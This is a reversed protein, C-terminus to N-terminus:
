ECMAITSRDCSHYSQRLRCVKPKWQKVRPIKMEEKTYVYMQPQGEDHPENEFQYHNSGSQELYNRQEEPDLQSFFYSELEALKAAHQKRLHVIHEFFDEDTPEAQTHHDGNRMQQELIEQQLKLQEVESEIQEIYGDYEM